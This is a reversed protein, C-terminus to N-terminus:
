SEMSNIFFTLADHDSYYVSYIKNLEVSIDDRKMRFYVHDIQGGLIHTPSTMLHRFGVNRLTKTFVNNENNILDLNFDGCIVVSQEMYNSVDALLKETFEKVKGSEAFRYVTILNFRDYSAAIASSLDNHFKEINSPKNKSLLAIGKSRKNLYYQHPFNSFREVIDETLWTESICIIDSKNLYFDKELDDCHKVLSRVNISSVKISAEIDWKTKVKNLSKKRIKAAEAKAAENCYIKKEQFPKLYLQSASVIRSLIVYAMAAQFTENLDALIKIPLPITSGQCKHVSFSWSCKLPCQIFAARASHKKNAKGLTYSFKVKEIPVAPGMNQIFKYKRRQEEGIKENDFKVLVFRVKDNNAIINQVIGQAGNVLGDATNVNHILMVRAGVKLELVDLFLSTEISGDSNIKVNREEPIHVAKITFKKTKLKNLQKCNEENVNVNKGFIKTINEDEPELVRSNLLALDEESMNEDKSKFRIRNLLDAYEKDSGQRHNHELDIFEFQEWLNM